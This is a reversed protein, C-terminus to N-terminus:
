PIILAQGAPLGAGTGLRQGKKPGESYVNAHALSTVSVGFQKAIGALTQGPKVTYSGTKIPTGTKVPAPTKGPPTGPKGAPGAPGAPGAAGAAGTAGTTGTAGPTATVSGSGSLAAIDAPSGYEYGTAPDVSASTAAPQQTAATSSSSRSRMFLFLVVLLLGMGSYALPKHKEIWGGKVAEKKGADKAKEGPHVEAGTHPEDAM